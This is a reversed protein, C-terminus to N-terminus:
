VGAYKPLTFYFVAGKGVDSEVWMKGGHSEVIRKAITLGAGTGESISPNLREFILFVKEHYLPDIGIGNDKVHFKFFGDDEVCGIEIEPALGETFKIANSVLNRLVETIQSPNCYITPLDDQIRFILHRSKMLYQFDTKIGQAIDKTEVFQYDRADRGIRALNLLDDILKRMRVSSKVISGMYQGADGQLGGEHEDLIVQIFGEINFLPNKLEHSIIYTFDSLEKVRWELEKSKKKLDDYLQANTIVTGIALGMALLLDNLHDGLVIEKKSGLSLVGITRGKSLLPISVLVRLGEEKMIEPCLDSGVVDGIIFPLGTELVKGSPGDGVTVVSAAEIFRLSVQESEVLHLEDTEPFLLYMLVSETNLLSGLSSSVVGFVDRVSFAENMRLTLSNLFRVDHERQRLECEMRIARTIDRLTLEFAHGNSYAIPNMSVELELISGDKRRAKSRSYGLFVDGHKASDNRRNSGDSEEFVIISDLEKDRIEDLSEFGLIRLFAPNAYVFRNNQCIATGDLSNEVLTRFKEESERARQYHQANQIAVAVQNAINHLLNVDEQSYADFDYTQVSMVGVVEHRSIMPVFMLSGARRATDGFPRLGDFEAGKPKRLILKPTRNIVVEKLQSEHISYCAGGGLVTRVGNIVDVNIVGTLTESRPDYLDIFFSDLDFVQCLKEFIIGYLDNPNLLYSLSTAIDNLVRLRHNTESLKEEFAKREAVDRFIGQIYRPVGEEDEVLDTTLVCPLISGDKRYYDVEINACHGGQKRFLDYFLKSKENQVMFTHPNFTLVADDSDLYGLMRAGAENIFITKGDLGRIYAGDATQNLFTRYRNESRSLEQTREDIMRELNKTYNHLQNELTKKASTNKIRALAGTVAGESDKLPIFDVSQCLYSGSMHSMKLECDKVMSGQKLVSAQVVATNEKDDPHVFDLLPKDVVDKSEYGLASYIGQNVAIIIGDSDLLLVVDGMNEVLAQHRTELVKFEASKEDILRELNQSKKKLDGVLRAKRIAPECLQVFLTLIDTQVEVTGMVCVLIGLPQENVFIPLLAVAKARLIKQLTSAVFPTLVPKTLDGFSTTVQFHRSSLCSAVLSGEEIHFSLKEFSVNVTRLFKEALRYDRESISSIQLTNTSGELLAIGAAIVGPLKLASDVIAQLLEDQDSSSGLTKNIEFMLSLQQDQKEPESSPAKFEASGKSRSRRLSSFRFLSFCVM